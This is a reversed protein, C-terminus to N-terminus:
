SRSYVVYRDSVLCPVRGDQNGVDVGRVVDFLGVRYNLIKICYKLFIAPENAPMKKTERPEKLYTKLNTDTEYNVSIESM